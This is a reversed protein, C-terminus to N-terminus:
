NHTEAVQAWRLAGLVRLLPNAAALSRAVSLGRAASVLAGFRARAELELAAEFAALHRQVAAHRLAPKVVREADFVVDDVEVREAQLELRARDDRRLQQALLAEHGAAARPDLNQRASLDALREGHTRVLETPLRGLFDGRRAARRLLERSRSGSSC